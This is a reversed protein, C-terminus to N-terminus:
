FTKIEFINQEFDFFIRFLKFDIYPFLRNCFFQVQYYQRLTVLFLTM